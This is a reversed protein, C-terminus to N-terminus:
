NSLFPFPRNLKNLQILSGTLIDTQVYLIDIHVHFQWSLCSYLFEKYNLVLALSIDASFYVM